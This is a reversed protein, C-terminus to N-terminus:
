GDNYYSKYEGDIQGNEYYEKYEGERIGDNVFVESKLQDSPNGSPYYERKVGTFSDTM